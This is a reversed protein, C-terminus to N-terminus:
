EYDEIKFKKELQLTQGEVKEINILSDCYFLGYSYDTVQASIVIKKEDQQLEIRKHVKIKDYDASDLYLKVISDNELRLDIYPKYILGNSSVIEFLKKFKKDDKSAKDIDLTDFYIRVNDVLSDPQNYYSAYRFFGFYLDGKIEKSEKIEIWETDYDSKTVERILSIKGIIPNRVIFRGSSGFAGHGFYQQIIMRDSSETSYYKTDFYTEGKTISTLFFGLIVFGLIIIGFVSYLIRSFKDKILIFGIIIAIGILSFFSYEIAMRLIRDQFEIPPRHFKPQFLLGILGISIILLIKLQKRTMIRKGQKRVVTGGYLGTRTEGGHKVTM